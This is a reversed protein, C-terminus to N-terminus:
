QANEIPHSGKLMSAGHELLSAAYRWLNPAIHFEAHVGRTLSETNGFMELLYCNPELKEINFSDVLINTGSKNLIKMGVGRDARLM